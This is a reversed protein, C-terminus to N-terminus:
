GAEAAMCGPGAGHGLAHCVPRAPEHHLCLGFGTGEIGAHLIRAVDACLVLSLASLHLCQGFSPSGDLSLPVGITRWLLAMAPELHQPAAEVASPQQPLALHPGRSTCRQGFCAVMPLRMPRFQYVVPHTHQCM